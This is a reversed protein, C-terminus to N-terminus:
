PISQVNKSHRLKPVNICNLGMEWKMLGMENKYLFGDSCTLVSWIWVSFCAVDQTTTAINPLYQDWPGTLCPFRLHLSQCQIRQWHNSTNNTHLLDHAHRLATAHYCGPLYDATTTTTCICGQSCATFSRGHQSESLRVQEKVRMLSHENDKERKGRGARWRKETERYGNKCRCGVPECHFTLVSCDM